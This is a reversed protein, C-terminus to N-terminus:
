VEKIYTKFRYHKAIFLGYFVAVIESSFAKSVKETLNYLYYEVKWKKKM